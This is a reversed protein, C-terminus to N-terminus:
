EKEKEYVKRFEELFLAAIEKDKIILINEDNRRDGGNTPNFSGTIVTENDIVFVKHHMNQKNKDKIVDIEQYQLRAFQSDKTVQRAEMVGHVAIGDLHKLLIINAIGEHTFSFAMFYISKQAKKLEEKVREACRDEPCFYNQISINNLFFSDVAVATGKKFTGNWMEQFEQEYNQALVTSEILLLNNNNKHADNDTPNMSGTSVKKGDIVCFKNHMLGWKDAKVFSHNFKRLYDNDTVVKVDIKRKKELLIDQVSVLGVDFLACHISQQASAIFQVLEQECNQQPCFYVDITGTDHIDSSIIEPTSTICGYLLLSFIVMVVVKLKM